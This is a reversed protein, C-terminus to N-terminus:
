KADLDINLNNMIQNFEDNKILVDLARLLKQYLHKSLSKNCALSRIMTFFVLELQLNEKMNLGNETSSFSIDAATFNVRNKALMGLGMELKPTLYVNHGMSNLYESIGSGIYSAIRYGKADELTQINYHKHKNSYLGYRSISIPSIWIFDTERQQSREIPFTCTLPTSLVTKIARGPPFVVVKYNIEAIEFLRRILNVAYGNVSHHSSVNVLPPVPYTILTITTLDSNPTSSTAIIHSTLILASIINM